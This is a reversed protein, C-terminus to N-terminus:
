HEFCFSASHLFASHFFSIGHSSVLHCCPPHQAQLQTQYSFASETPVSLPFVARERKLIQIVFFAGPGLHPPSNFGGERPHLFASCLRSTDCDSELAKKQLGAESFFYVFLCPWVNSSLFARAVFLSSPYLSLSIHIFVLRYGDAYVCVEYGARCGGTLQTGLVSAELEPLPMAVGAPDACVTPSNAAVALVSACVLGPFWVLM